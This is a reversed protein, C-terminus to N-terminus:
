DTPSLIFQPMASAIIVIGFAISFAMGFISMFRRRGSVDAGDEKANSPLESYINCATWLGACALLLTLVSIVHLVGGHGTGRAWQVTPYSIGLDLSWALPGAIISFWLGLDRKGGVERGTTM